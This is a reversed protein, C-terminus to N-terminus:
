RFRELYVKANKEKGKHMKLVSGNHYSRLQVEKDILDEEVCKEYMETGPFPYFWTVQMIDAKLKENLQVTKRCLEEDEVVPWGIVNFACTGIGVEKCVRFAEEIRENSMNRHLVRKRFEEDGCEVGMALYEGGTEKMVKVIDKDV